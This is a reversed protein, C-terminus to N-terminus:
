IARPDLYKTLKRMLDQSAAAVEPPQVLACCGAALPMLALFFSLDWVASLLAVSRPETCLRDKCLTGFLSGSKVWLGNKATGPTSASM